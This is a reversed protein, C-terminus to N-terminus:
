FSQFADKRIHFGSFQLDCILILIDVAKHLCVENVPNSICSLLQVGSSAPIVLHRQIHSKICSIFHFLRIFQYFAKQFNQKADHFFIGLGNHRSKGMQLFCLGNRQCMM